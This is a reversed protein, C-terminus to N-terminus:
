QKEGGPQRLGAQASKIQAVNIQAGHKALLEASKVLLDQDM